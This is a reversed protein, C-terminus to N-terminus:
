AADIASVIGSIKGGFRYASLADEGQLLRFDHAPIVKKWFRGKTCMSCNCCSTVGALDLEAAFRVAGCHCSGRYTRRM